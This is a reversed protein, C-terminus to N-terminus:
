GIEVQAYRVITASGIFQKVSQKDDKAYPQDVLVVDKYFGNIRGEIIKPLAAEPKGENRSITELTQREHELVEAPIDERNLYKPRAFGIHVAVDHAVEDNGGAIEVLVGNVGRGGQNHLYHGIVNGAAAEIRVVDGLEIKEKLVIKLDELVETREAVAEVGKAAVLEALTQAEAKFQESSAVFDTESKLKVIAGVNGDIVLAVVGQTNERDDRKASAALGKERLWQKAAEMDGDNAELAKKADMMGAGTSQRLAQVDKATFAM